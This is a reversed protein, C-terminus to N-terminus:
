GEITKKTIVLDNIGYLCWKLNIFEANKIHSISYQCRLSHKHHFTYCLRTFVCCSKWSGCQFLFIKLFLDNIIYIGNNRKNLEADKSICYTISPHDSYLKKDFICCWGWLLEFRNEVEVQINKLQKRSIM